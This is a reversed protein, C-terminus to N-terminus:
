CGAWRPHSVRFLWWRHKLRLVPFVPPAQLSCACCVAAAAEERREVLAGGGESTPEGFLILIVTLAPAVSMAIKENKCAASIATGLGQAALGVLILLAVFIFFAGAAPNLGVIWYVIVGFLLGQGVRLPIDCIFRALYYPLVHYAKGARERGRTFPPPSLHPPPPTNPAYSPM